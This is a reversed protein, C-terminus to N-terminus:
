KESKIIEQALQSAFSDLSVARPLGQLAGDIVMDIRDAKEDLIPDFKFDAVGWQTWFSMVPTTQGDRDLRGEVQECDGPTWPRDLLFLDSAAHQLGDIASGGVGHTLCLYDAGGRAFKLKYATREDPTAHSTIADCKLIRALEEAVDINTCFSISRRGNEKLEQMAAAVAPIKARAAAHKQAWCLGTALKKEEAGGKEYVGIAEQVEAHYRDADAASVEAPVLVRQLPPLDLCDKKKRGLMSPAILAHLEELHEAGSTDWRSWKTQKAGCYRKEFSSRSNGLPNGVAVLLPFINKPLANKMPTATLAYVARANEALFLFRKTRKSQVNQAFHAEDGILIYPVDPTPVNTAAWSYVGEPIINLLRCAAYWQDHSNVPAIILVRCGREKKWWKAALLATITKGLGTDDHLIIKKERILIPIGEIQHKRLPRGDPLPVLYKAITVDVDALRASEATQLAAIEDAYTAEGNYKARIDPLASLPYSWVKMEKIWRGGPISKAREVNADSYPSAVLVLSGRLTVHTM